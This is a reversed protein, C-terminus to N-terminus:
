MKIGPGAGWVVIQPPPNYIAMQPVESPMPGVGSCVSM